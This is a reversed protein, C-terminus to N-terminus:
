YHHDLVPPNHGNEAEAIVEKTTNINTYEDKSTLILVCSSCREKCDGGEGKHSKFYKTRKELPINGCNSELIIFIL